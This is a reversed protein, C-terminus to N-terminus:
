KMYLLIKKPQGDIFVSMSQFLYCCDLVLILCNYLNCMNYLDDGREPTEYVVVLHDRCHVTFWVKM